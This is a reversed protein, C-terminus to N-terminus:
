HSSRDTTRGLRILVRGVGHQSVREAQGLLIADKPHLHARPFVLLEGLGLDKPDRLTNPDLEQDDIVTHM